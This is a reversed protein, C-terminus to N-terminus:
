SLRCMDAFPTCSMPARKSVKSRQRDPKRMWTGDPGRVTYKSLIASVEAHIQEPTQTANVVHVHCPVHMLMRTYLVDLDQLYKLTVSKDGTQGRSQIHEYALEPKKALYIYVDPYWKYKEYANEYVDHEEDRVLKNSWLYEWFVYRTSLLCREYVTVETVPSPRITQLIKLQLLLAWRSMDKYFLELPWQDLPERKVLWGATELIGLQTTKGSGINGDIVIHM